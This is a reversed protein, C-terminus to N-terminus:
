KSAAHASNLLRDFMSSPFNHFDPTIGNRALYQSVKDKFDQPCKEVVDKLQEAQEDTIYQAAIVIPKKDPFLDEQIEGQVYCGKIVDPFLQRALRSLARAFLMDEPYKDWVPSKLGARRAEELSFSAVITDGNDARRGRLYCVEATSCPEKTISHGKSRILGNMASSSLEVKGNVFFMSGNLAELVSMGMSKAKQIIAFVGAETLRAYHSTKMLESVLRRTCELESIATEVETIEQSM